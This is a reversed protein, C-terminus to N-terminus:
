KKGKHFERAQKAWEDRKVRGPFFEIAKNVEEEIKPTMNGVQEFTYIGLAYLKEAIFPGIGKITQLDDKEDITAVGLTAFDITEAKQAIRELEEAQKLAKEDLKVDEGLLIKAQNVWQDRKVRGPFFEIAENVQTELKATMNAIQRYTTIGLANLKEEIFPGIGKIVQLDDKVMVVSAKGFVRTIGGVGTLTNGDKGTWSIITSGKDDTIAASGADAFEKADAVELTKAGKKVESKLKTSSATGLVKFDITKARSKVRQIEEEKKAEKTTAPKKAAAKKAKAEAEKAAKAEAEKAAKADAEEKAKKDAADAEKKAKAEAAKADKEAKKQAEEEAKAEVEKAAKADAEAKAKKEAEEAEKKAKKDAADAEKKAKAEAAKADKEAKKQAKEEAKKQAKEEAEAVAIAALAEEEAKKAAEAEEAELKAKQEAEAAAALEAEIKANKEAEAAEKERQKKAKKREAELRKQEKVYEPDPKVKIDWTFYVSRRGVKVAGRFEGGALTPDHSDDFLLRFKMVGDDDAIIMRTGEESGSDDQMMFRSENERDFYDQSKVKLGPTIDTITILEKSVVISGPKVTKLPKLIFPSDKTGGGEAFKPKSTTNEPEADDYTTIVKDRLLILPVLLLLLLLFCLPFCWWVLKNEEDDDDGDGKLQDCIDGETNEPNSSTDLPDSGCDLEDQDFYGDNDDDHDVTINGTYNAPLSDPLSDNDTDNFVTISLVFSHQYNSNNAWVTVNVPEETYNTPTGRIGGDLMADRAPSWGFTLGEPIDGEIEWSAVEGIGTVNPLFDVMTKNVFLDVYQSEYTLNFDLDIIDDLADCIGDGDMDPLLNVVKPDTGCMLETEDFITDNDDDIDEILGTTSNGNLEDPMGDGDTDLSAAPDNPFADPGAVCIAVDPTAPGDCVGDGDSDPNAPDTGTDSTSNYIGTNTEDVNLIGDGDMDNDENDCIGDGDMDSPVDNVDTKNSLCAIEVADLYGDNDDDDDAILGGEGDPDDDPFADGDTNVPLAPDLPHSDPGAFCVGDVADPGDCFGDGDTDPNLSDTGNTAEDVDPTGDADDDLDEVLDYPPLGTDPYDDPLQDPMGDGDTDELIELWFTSEVSRPESTNAWLTFTTNEMAEIPTGSIVGTTVNLTLGAPLDPSVAWIAGPVANAPPLPTMETNNVLVTPGLPGTGVPNSDPGAICIPLVSNPGDCIGDNDTDPDLPDTGMDGSGNFIGTGTEATDLAGDNDDDLDEILDYNVDNTPYDIPLQNPMGDGDTDELVQLEFNFFVGGQSNNGYVTYTTNDMVETPTGSIVGTQPNITVGEPLDPSIEYVGNEITYKPNLMVMATNNVLYVAGDVAVGFDEDPGAVCIINGQLDYVDIPGDCIGDNDTDPDLPDTGTDTADNYVGTNTENVDEIGDGDDDLDEVLEPDSTSPPNLTDPDGDGDTDTDASPDLPFADPGAVCDPPSAVPGDCMGDGDTDPNTPDTGDTAEDVDSNGDNDDDLDEILGPSDPNTPDYDDPLDNPMGDGDSDELIEITFDWSLSTGDTHNSWVTFTTNTLTETPMGTIDGTNPDISLSAPLDPSIEFTGGPVVLYPALDNIATNNVGVLTPPPTNGNPSPDPGAICIPPVANPGDCIGDDDTDPDLPDTGTDQGNIYIGTDTEVTDLLGDGDDDDDAILGPTPPNAPNYAPPLDNPLGDGDTDLLSELSFTFTETAGSSHTATVTFTDSMPSDVTGTIEGTASDQSLSNPLTPSVSWTTTGDWFAPHFGIADIPQDEVVTHPYANDVSFYLEHTTSYGSQNAYITYTQNSAYVSPTGSITGGSISMGAPLPPETEWSVPPTYNSYTIVSPQYGAVRPYPCNPSGQGDESWQTGIDYYLVDDIVFSFRKGPSVGYTIIYSSCSSTATPHTPMDTYHNSVFYLSENSIDYAWLHGNNANYYGPGGGQQFSNDHAHGSFYITDGVVLSMERGPDFGTFPNGPLDTIMWATENTTNYAWLEEANSDDDFGFYIVDNVILRMNNTPFGCGSNYLCPFNPVQWASENETNIAWIQSSVHNQGTPGMGIYNTGITYITSGIVGIYQMPNYNRYSLTDSQDVDTVVWHTYNSTDYAFIKRDALNTGTTTIADFYITDGIVVSFDDGPRSSSSSGSAAIGPNIDAALWTTQNTATYAWLEESHPYPWSTDERAGFYLTDGVVQTMYQGPYAGNGNDFIDTVNWATGNQPNFGWIEVNNATDNKADFYLVGDMVETFYEGIMSAYATPNIDKVFWTTNTLVDHAWLESGNVGNDADFIITNDILVSMREGPVSDGSPNIDAVLWSMGTDISYAYLEHGASGSAIGDMYITNGHHIAMHEGCDCFIDQNDWWISGNGTVNVPATQHGDQSTYSLSIPTMAEGLQLEAGDVTSTIEGFDSSSLWIDTQLTVSGINATVTYTTNSTAVTPTGSIAGNSIGIGSPLAPDTSWIVPPSTSITINNPAYSYYQMGANYNGYSSGSGPRMLIVLTDDINFSAQYGHVTQHAGSAVGLCVEAPASSGNIPNARVGTFDTYCWETGHSRYSAHYVMSGIISHKNQNEAAYRHGEMIVITGSSTGDSIYLDDMECNNPHCNDVGGDFAFHTENWVKFDVTGATRAVGNARPLTSSDPVFNAVLSASTGDFKYLENGTGTNGLCEGIWYLNQDFVFLEPRPNSMYLDPCDAILTTGATTGDTKVIGSQQLYYYEGNFTAGYSMSTVLPNLTSDQHVISTGSVTGDSASLTHTGSAFDSYYIEGNYVFPLYDDGVMNSSSINALTVTGSATGDSKWLQNQGGSAKLHFYFEGNLVPLCDFCTNTNTAFQMGQAGLSQISTIYVLGRAVEDFEYMSGNQLMYYRSGDAEVSWLLRPNNQNTYPWANAVLTTRTGANFDLISLDQECEALYYDGMEVMNPKYCSLVSSQSSATPELYWTSNNGSTVYGQPIQYSHSFTIPTMAEGIFLDAGEVSPTLINSSGSGSSATRTTDWTDGGSVSVPSGQDTTGAGNGLQGHDDHGWCKMDGNDLIACTHHYNNDIAVATRGVGLDIPNSPPSSEYSYYDNNGAGGIGLQGYRDHGWCKAEDNDLIACTNYGGAAVAVATRGPGLDIATSPPEHLEVLSYDSGDAYPASIGRGLYGHSDGGWCKLEGNDLIACTHHVGASVAVATRGPGFNIPTSQPEALNVGNGPTGLQGSDDRGWCKLDSNDLIACTHHQGASVAIATRGLGLDIANSPPANVFSGTGGADGLQGNQDWGWCKLEGNDLIACTHHGGTSVAVATRGLGLDIPESTNDFECCNANGGGDQGNGLQGHRNWGWCVLDGNDLIACTVWYGNDVAVATRGAGLDITTSPPAYLHVNASEPTARSNGWCKLGGDDLIACTHSEGVSMKNNAYVIASGSGGTEMVSSEEDFSDNGTRPSNILDLYGVQTM